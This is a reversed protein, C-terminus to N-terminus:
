PRTETKAVSVPVIDCIYSNAVPWTAGTVPQLYIIHVGVVGIM